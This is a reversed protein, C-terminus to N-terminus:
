AGDAPAPEPEAAADPLLFGFHKLGEVIGDACVARAVYLRAARHEACWARLEPQANGVACGRVGNVALLQIDNGSDGSAMTHEAVAAYASCGGAALAAGEEAALEELLTNLAAGKNAGCPLIDVDVGSSVVLEYPVGTRDLRQRLDAVSAGFLPADEPNRAKLSIKHARQESKEQLVLGPVAFVATLLADRNWGRDLIQARHATRTVLLSLSFM